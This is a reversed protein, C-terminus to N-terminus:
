QLFFLIADVVVVVVVRENCGGGSGAITGDSTKLFIVSLLAARTQVKIYRFTEVM